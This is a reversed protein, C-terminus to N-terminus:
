KKEEKKKKDQKIMERYDARSIRHKTGNIERVKPFYPEHMVPKVRAKM